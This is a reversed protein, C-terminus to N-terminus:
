IREIQILCTNCPFAGGPSMDDRTLVNVCGGDDVGDADPQFWIGADLSAVGEM